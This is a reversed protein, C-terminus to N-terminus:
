HSKQWRNFPKPQHISYIAEHNWSIELNKLPKPEPTPKVANPNSVQPSDTNKTNRQWTQSNAPLTQIIEFPNQRLLGVMVHDKGRRKKLHWWIKENGRAKRTNCEWVDEGLWKGPSTGSFCGVTTAASDKRSRKASLHRSGFSSIRERATSSIISAANFDAGQRTQPPHARPVCSVPNASSLSCRETYGVPQPQTKKKAANQKRSTQQNNCKHQMTKNKCDERTIGLSFYKWFTHSVQSLEPLLNTRWRAWGALHKGVYEPCSVEPARLMRPLMQAARHLAHKPGTSQPDSGLLEFAWNSEEIAKHPPLKLLNPCEKQPRPM